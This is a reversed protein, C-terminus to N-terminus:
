KWRKDEVLEFRFINLM